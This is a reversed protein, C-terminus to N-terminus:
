CDLGATATGRRGADRVVRCLAPAVVHTHLAGAHSWAGSVVYEALFATLDDDELTALAADARDVLALRGAEADPLPAAPPTDLGLRVILPWAASRDPTWRVAVVEGSERPAAARRIATHGRADLPAHLRVVSASAAPLWEGIGLWGPVREAHPSWLPVALMVLLVALRGIWRRRRSPVIVRPLAMLAVIAATAGLPLLARPDVGALAAREAEAWRLPMALHPATSPYAVRWDGPPATWQALLYPYPDDLAAIIRAARADPDYAAPDYAAGAAHWDAWSEGRGAADHMWQPLAFELWPLGTWPVTGPLVSEAFSYLPESRPSTLWLTRAAGADDHYRIAARLRVRASYEDGTWEPVDVVWHFAVLEGDVVRDFRPLPEARGHAAEHHQWGLSLVLLAALGTLLPIPMTLRTTVVSAATELAAIPAPVQPRAEVPVSGPAALWAVIREHAAHADAEAIPRPVMSRSSFTVAGGRTTRPHGDLKLAWSGREDQVLRVAAVGPLPRDDSALVVRGIRHQRVIRKPGFIYHENSYRAFVLMLVFAALGLGLWLWVRGFLAEGIALWDPMEGTLVDAAFLVIPFAFALMFFLMFLPSDLQNPTTATVELGRPTVLTTVRSEQRLM